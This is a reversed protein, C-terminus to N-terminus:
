ELEVITVGTGGESLEGSRFSKVEKIKKLYDAVAQRLIGRGKGHLITVVKYNKCIADYIFRDLAPFIDDRFKGRLNLVPIFDSIGASETVKNKEEKVMEIEDPGVWIKMKESGILYRQDEIALVEGKFKYRPVSVTEGMRPFYPERRKELTREAQAMFKRAEEIAPKSARSEKIRRILTSFERRQQDILSEFEQHMKAKQQKTYEGFRGIRAEYDKKLEELEERLKKVQTAEQALNELLQNFSYIQPDLFERARKLIGAEIGMEQAVLLANSGQPVDVILRYTPRDKFEMGANKMGPQTQVFMKIKENHTTAFLLAGRRKFEELMSCALAAGEDPSTQSLFEDFLLLTDGDASQLA